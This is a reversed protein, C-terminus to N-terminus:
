NSHTNMKVNVAQILRHYDWALRLNGNALAHKREYRLRKKLAEHERLDRNLTLAKTCVRYTSRDHVSGYRFQRSSLSGKVARKKVMVKDSFHYRWNRSSRVWFDFDEYSLSADYGGLEELVERRIMMTPASIFYSALVRDYIYGSPPPNTVSGHEDRDYHFGLSKGTPDIWEHDGYHVGYEAPLAALDAIGSSVRQPMLVDDAALDIIYQGQALRFARNFSACNGLNSPNYIVKLEPYTRQLQAITERSGDQSFDDVVIVELNDHDQGFASSIAEGVYPEHNYCLCIISVEPSKM